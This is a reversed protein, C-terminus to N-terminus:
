EEAYTLDSGRYTLTGSSPVDLGGLVNLLTSKGSGSPGLLVILEGRYLDLDVGNLACVDVEGTHYIKTLGRAVFLPERDSDGGDASPFGTLGPTDSTIAGTPRHVSRGAEAELISDQM